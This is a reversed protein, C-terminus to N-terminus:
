MTMQLHISRTLEHALALRLSINEVPMLATPPKGGMSVIAYANNDLQGVYLILRSHIRDAATNLLENDSRFM